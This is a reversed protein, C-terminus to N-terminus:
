AEHGVDLEEGGGAAGVELGDLDVRGEREQEEAAHPGLVEHGVGGGEVGAVPQVVDGVAMEVPAVATELRVGAHGADREEERSSRIVVVDMASITSAPGRPKQAPTSRAMSM